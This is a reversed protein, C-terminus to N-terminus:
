DPMEGAPLSAGYLDAVRRELDGLTRQTDMRRDLVHVILMGDGLETSLTGPLLSVVATFLTQPAGAPLRLRYEVFDPAIPRAPALARRAVDIGGLVSQRVFLPVFRVAGILRWGHSGRPVLAVSAATAGAIVVIALLPYRLDGGTLGLWLLALLSGRVFVSTIVGRAAGGRRSVAV